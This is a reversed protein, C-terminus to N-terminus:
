RIKAMAEFKTANLIKPSNLFAEPRGNPSASSSTFSFISSKNPIDKDSGFVFKEGIFEVASIECRPPKTQSKMFEETFCEVNGNRIIKGSYEHQASTLRTGTQCAALLSALSLLVWQKTGRVSNLKM